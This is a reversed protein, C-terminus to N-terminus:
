RPQAQLRPFHGPEVLQGELTEPAVPRGTLFGQVEHCQMQRLIDLQDPSEVGEATVRMSLSRGLTVIAQVIAAAAPDRGLNAIFSRDIKLKTFPFRNLYSLSSYGTGFDDLAIGVGMDRLQNLIALTPLTDHLLLTETIELELRSPPLGTRLLTDAVLDVLGPRRVQEPSLNVALRVNWAVARACATRLVWEGLICILGATEAAPIFEAPPIFGHEPHPWRALAEVGTILGSQIDFLPQYDIQLENGALAQRLDLQLETRRQVAAYLVPSFCQSCGRGDAKARYLAIDAQRMLMASTVAHDQRSCLAIGISAGVRAEADGLQFPYSVTDIVRQAVATAEASSSLGELLIAFEDGGLRALVDDKAITHAIRASVLCLLEDGAAHGLTDNVNKFHDLDVFLVAITWDATAKPRPDDFTDGRLRALTRELRDGFVTRNPLATLSDHHAMHRIHAEARRRSTIDDHYGVWGGDTIPEHRVAVVRGDRLAVETDIVRESVGIRERWTSYQEGTMEPGTGASQRLDVIDRLTMGLYLQATTLNYLEAFRRNFMLLQQRGNFVCVGQQLRDLAIDRLELQTFSPAPAHLATAPQPAALGTRSVTGLYPNVASDSM